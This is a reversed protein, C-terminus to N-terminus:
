PAVADSAQVLLDVHGRTFVRSTTLVALDHGNREEPTDPIPHVFLATQEDIAVSIMDRASRLRRTEVQPGAVVDPQAWAGEGAPLFIRVRISPDPGAQAWRRLHRELRGWGNDSCALAIQSAAGALLDDIERAVARRGVVLRVEGAAVDALPQLPPPELAASLVRGAGETAALQARLERARHQLFNAFPKARFSRRSAEAIIEVLGVAQLEQVINYLHSRPVHAASALASATMSPQEVLALYVRASTESLGFGVLANLRSGGAHRM